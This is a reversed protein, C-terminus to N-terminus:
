LNLGRAFALMVVLACVWLIAAVEGFRLWWEVSVCFYTLGECFM